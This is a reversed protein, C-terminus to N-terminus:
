GTSRNAKLSVIHAVDIIRFFDPQFVRTTRGSPSLMILERLCVPIM